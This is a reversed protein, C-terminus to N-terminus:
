SLPRSARPGKPHYMGSVQAPPPRDLHRRYELGDAAPVAALGKGAHLHARHHRPLGAIAELADHTRLGLHLHLVARRHLQRESVPREVQDHGVGHDLVEIVLREGAEQGLCVAHQRGAVPDAEPVEPTGQKLKRVHLHVVRRELHLVQAGALDQHPAQLLRAESLRHGVLHLTRPPHRDGEFTRHRCHSYRADRARPAPARTARAAGTRADHPVTKRAHALARRLSTQWSIFYTM